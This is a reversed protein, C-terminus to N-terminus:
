RGLYQYREILTQLYWLLKEQQEIKQAESIPTKWNETFQKTNADWNIEGLADFMGVGDSFSYYAFDTNKAETLCNKSWFFDKALELNWADLLIKGLDHHNCFRDIKKNKYFSNLAPGWFIMPIHHYAASQYPYLNPTPHSHDAVLIFITNAYWAAQQAQHFFIRLQEDTFRVGNLYEAQSIAKFIEKQHPADYPAHSSLTFFTSFFPEKQTNLGALFIPLMAQDHIGLRGRETQAVQSFHKEARTYVENDLLYSGINGQSLNGGFYFSTFYGNKQIEKLWSPLHIYKERDLIVAHGNPLAPFGGFIADIGQHSHTGAAFAQTFLLGEQALQNVFPAVNLNGTLEDLVDSSWSELLFLVINPKETSFLPQELTKHNQFEKLFKEKKEKSIEIKNLYKKVQISQANEISQGLNWVTNVAVLNLIPYKESFYIDNPALPIPQLGGRAGILFFPIFAILYFIKFKETNWYKEFSKKWFWFGFILVLILSLSYLSLKFYSITETALIPNELFFYLATSNIKTQWEAYIEPDILFCITTVFLFFGQIFILLYTFFKEKRIQQLIFFPLSILAFYCCLSFDMYLARYFLELIKLLSIHIFHEAQHAIFYIRGLTFIGEWFLCFFLFFQILYILSKFFFKINTSQM